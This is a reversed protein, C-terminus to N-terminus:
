PYRSEPAGPDLSWIIGDGKKMKGQKDNRKEARSEKRNAENKTELYHGRAPKILENKLSLENKSSAIEDSLSSKKWKSELLSGM